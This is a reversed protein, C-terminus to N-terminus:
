HAHGGPGHAHGAHSSQPAPDHIVGEMMQKKLYKGPDRKLTGACNASCLYVRMGAVDAYASKDVPNGTVPCTKQIKAVTFGQERLKSIYKGPNKGFEQLCTRSCLFVRLGEQDAALDRRPRGGDVPCGTQFKPPGGADNKPEPQEATGPATSTANSVKPQEATEPKWNKAESVKPQSATKQDPKNAKGCGCLGAVTVAATFVSMARKM